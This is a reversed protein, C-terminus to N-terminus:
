KDNSMLEKTDNVIQGMEAEPIQVPIPKSKTLRPALVFSYGPKVRPLALKLRYTMESNHGIPELNPDNNDLFMKQYLIECRLAERRAARTKGDFRLLLKDVDQQTKCPGGNRSVTAMIYKRDTNEVIHQTENTDHRQAIEGVELKKHAESLKQVKRSHPSKKRKPSRLVNKKAQRHSSEEFVDDSSISLDDDDESSCTPSFDYPHKSANNPRKRKYPSRRNSPYKGMLVVFKCNAMQLCIDPPPSQSYKGGPLFDGLNEETVAAIAKLIKKLSARILDRNTHWHGCYHFIKDFTKEQLPVQLFANVSEEPELFTSPDKSWELLRQYLFLMYKGYHTYEGESKMLQLYPGLIKCYILALVCVLSQIVNDTSDASISELIIDQCDDDNMLLLDSFFLAIENHHHILGAAAEFYDILRNSLSVSLKSPNQKEECFAVWHKRYNQKASAKPNLIDCAMHIYRSTASESFNVFSKFKPIKDRGLPEGTFKILEGELSILQQEIANYMDVFFYANYHLFDLPSALLIDEPLSALKLQFEMMDPHEKCTLTFQNKLLDMSVQKSADTRKGYVCTLKQVSLIAIDLLTLADGKDDPATEEWDSSKDADEDNEESSSINESKVIIMKHPDLHSCSKDEDYMIDFSENEENDRVKECGLLTDKKMRKKAGFRRMEVKQPVLDFPSQLLNEKATNRRHSRTAHNHHYLKLKRMQSTLTKYARQVDGDRCFEPNFNKLWAVLNVPDIKERVAFNSLEVILGYTVEISKAQESFDRMELLDAREVGISDCIPGVFNFNVDSELFTLRADSGLSLTTAIGTEILCRFDASQHKPFIKQLWEVVAKWSLNSDERMLGVQILLRNKCPAEHLALGEGTQPGNFDTILKWFNDDRLNAEMVAPKGSFSFDKDEEM